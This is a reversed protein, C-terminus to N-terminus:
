EPDSLDGKKPLPIIASQSWHEPKELNVYADNCFSLLITKMEPLKWVEAPIEDPGSAKGNASQKLAQDIEEITFQGTEIPLDEEVIRNIENDDGTTEPFPGEM